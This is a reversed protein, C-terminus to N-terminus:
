STTMKQRSLLKPSSRRGEAVVVALLRTAAVLRREALLRRVPYYATATATAAAARTASHPRAHGRHQRTKRCKSARFWRPAARGRSDPRGVPPARTGSKQATQGPARSEGCASTGPGRPGLRSKQELYKARAHAVPQQGPHRRALSQCLVTCCYFLYIEGQSSFFSTTNKSTACCLM